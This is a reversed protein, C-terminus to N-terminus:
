MAESRLEEGDGRTCLFVNNIMPIIECFSAFKLENTLNFDSSVM